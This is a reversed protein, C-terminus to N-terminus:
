RSERGQRGSLGTFYCKGEMHDSVSPKLNNLEKKHNYLKSLTIYCTFWYQSILEMITEPKQM